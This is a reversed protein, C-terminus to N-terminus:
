TLRSITLSLSRKGCRSSICLLAMTATVVSNKRGVTPSNRLIGEGGDVFEEDGWKVSSGKLISSATQAKVTQPREEEVTSRNALAPLTIAQIM